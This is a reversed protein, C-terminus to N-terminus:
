AVARGHNAHYGNVSEFNKRAAVAAELTEFYGIHIQKNDISGKARYKSGCLSIGHYGTSNNSLLRKNKVNEKKGCVRLNALRNDARNGNIHDIEETPWQGTFLLIVLQHARMQKKFLSIKVYGSCSVFGALKEAYRHNWQVYARQTKFLHRERKKFFFQGSESDYALLLNLTKTDIM